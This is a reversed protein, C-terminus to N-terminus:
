RRPRSRRGPPRRPGTTASRACTWRSSRRTTPPCRRRRTPAYQTPRPRADGVFRLRRRGDAHHFSRGHAADSDFASRATMSTWSGKGNSAPRPRWSRPAITSASDNRCPWGAVTPCAPPRRSSGAACGAPRPRSRRRRREVAGVRGRGRWAVRVRVRASVCRVVACAAPVDRFRPGDCCRVLSRAGRSLGARRRRGASGAVVRVRRPCAVRGSARQRRAAGGARRVRGGRRGSGYVARDGPSGGACRDDVAGQGRARRRDDAGRGAAGPCAPQLGSRVM